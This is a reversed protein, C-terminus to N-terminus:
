TRRSVAFRSTEGSDGLRHAIRCNTSSLRQCYVFRSSIVWGSLAASGQGRRGLCTETGRLEENLHTFLCGATIRNDNTTRHLTSATSRHSGTLPLPTGVGPQKVVSYSSLSVHVASDKRVAGKTFACAKASQETPCSKPPVRKFTVGHSCAIHITQSWYHHSRTM